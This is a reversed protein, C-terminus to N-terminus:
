RGENLVTGWASWWVLSPRRNRELFRALQRVLDATLKREECAQQFLVLAMNEERQIEPSSWVPLVENGLRRVEEPDGLLLTALDMFALAADLGLEGQLFGEAATRLIREAPAREASLRAEVLSLRLQAPRDGVEAARDLAEGLRAAAADRRGLGLLCWVRGSVLALHLSADRDADLLSEARDLAALAEDRRSLHYLCWAQHVLAAGGLHPDYADEETDDRETCIAHVRGLLGVADELRREDRRLLAELALVEAEISPGETGAARRERAQDFADNAAALEGMERRANGLCALASAALDEIWDQDYAPDLADAVALGLNALQAACKPQASASSAGLRLLWVAFGWTQYSPESRVAAMQRQYPLAAIQSWLGPAREAEVLVAALNWHRLERSKARLGEFRGRCISCISLLHRLVMLEESGESGIMLSAMTEITLHGAGDGAAAAGRLDIAEELTALPLPDGGAGGNVGGANSFPSRHRLRRAKDSRAEPERM